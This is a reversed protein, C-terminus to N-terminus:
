SQNTLRSSNVFFIIRNISFYFTHSLSFNKTKRERKCHFMENDLAFFLLWLYFFFRKIETDRFNQM